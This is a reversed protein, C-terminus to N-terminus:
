HRSASFALLVNGPMHFYLGYGSNVVVYGARVAVGPGDFSGGQGIVGSVTEFRRLADFQWLVHGDRADYARLEGDLHGAFVVGPIVTVAAAIGPDCFSRGSCRDAAPMSWLLRGTAPELAYLGPRPASANPRGDHDDRMDSIPVFLRGDAEAMGFEVGGQIGGRGLRREWVTRGGADPDLAYVEGSKQGALVLARGTPTGALIVSAGFDGDPGEKAPCNPNGKAMCAANWVDDALVQRHWVVKGDRLRIALIADSRDDAPMSYNDGTGVYLVGRRADITPSNWVPAGSPALIPTGASTKGVPEPKADITYTRWRLTGTSADLAVVSGRFTCCGGHLNVAVTAEELSSVPVYLTGDYLSPAGTVTADPHEAVKVRWRLKGTLPDISYVHGIVDGFFLHPGDVHDGPAALVMGTRVEASAHYTWRVCGSALDLAYVTGDPGGVYVAGYAIAPQSRARIAQPFAFAWKLTLNPVESRPLGAVEGPIFRTNDHGWGLAVPAQRLDFRAARGRCLPPPHAAGAGLNQAGLYEAVERKEAPSLARAEGVMMGHTIAALISAPSMMQLFVKEPAGPAQGEHCTACHDHFVRAGAASEGSAPSEARAPSAQSEGPNIALLFAMLVALACPLALRYM